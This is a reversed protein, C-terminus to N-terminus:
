RLLGKNIEELTKRNQAARERHTPHTLFLHYIKGIRGEPTPFKKAFFEQIWIAAEPKYGARKLYVMGYKDAELEQEQSNQCELLSFIKGYIVDFFRNSIDIVKCQSSFLGTGKFFLDEGYSEGLPNNTLIFLIYKLLNFFIVLFVFFMIQKASHRACVHTIEHAMVAAVKDELTIGEVETVGLHSKEEDLAELLGKYFSIKGGPLCWANISPAHIVSFKYPLNPRDSYKAIKDGVEEVIKYYEKNGSFGGQSSVYVPYLFEGVLSEVFEPILHFERYNTVPNRPLIWDAASSIIEM